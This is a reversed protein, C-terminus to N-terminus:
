EVTIAVIFPTAILGRSTLELSTLPVEPHPNEWITHYLRQVVDRSRALASAGRWAVRYSSGTDPIALPGDWWDALTEGYRVPLTITRGDAYHFIYDGLHEAPRGTWVAAHLFHVRRCLQGIPVGTVRAPYRYGYSRLESGDLQILGRVDFTVGDFTQLGTPLTDLTQGLVSNGSVHWDDNLRVNYFSTLDLQHLTGNPSRASIYRSAEHETRAEEPRGLRWLV